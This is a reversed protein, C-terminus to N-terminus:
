PAVGDEATGGADPTTGVWRLWLEDVQAELDEVSGSGDLLVTAVARRAADDAQATVRAWAQEVPMGRGEVLRGIRRQVPAEVVVVEDFTAPDGTEVLLPIDHVVVSRGAAQAEDERRRAEVRVLPHVIGNLRGRAADDVFVVGALAERDLAGDPALVSPGFAEVVGALGPSGPGVVERALVDYDVVVAGLEGLRRAVVSKGAAIGGTVGVRLV